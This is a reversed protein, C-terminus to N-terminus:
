VLKDDFLNMKVKTDPALLRRNAVFTKGIESGFARKMAEISTIYLIAVLSIYSAPRMM